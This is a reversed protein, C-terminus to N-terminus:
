QEQLYASFVKTTDIHTFMLAWRRKRVLKSGMCKALAHDDMTWRTRIATM